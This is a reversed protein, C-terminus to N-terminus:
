SNLINVFKLNSLDNVFLWNCFNKCIDEIHIINDVSNLNPIKLFIIIFDYALDPIYQIFSNESFTKQKNEREFLGHKIYGEYFGWGYINIYERFYIIFTIALEILKNEVTVKSFLIFYVMLIEDISLFLQSPPIFIKNSFLIKYKDLYQLFIHNELDSSDLYFISEESKFINTLTKKTLAILKNTFEFNIIKGYAISNYNYKISSNYFSKIKILENRKTISIINHRNRRHTYYAPYTIYIKGCIKCRYKGETQSLDKSKIYKRKEPFNTQNNKCKKYILKKERTYNIFDPIIDETIELFDTSNSKKQRLNNEM